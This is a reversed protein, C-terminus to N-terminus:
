NDQREAHIKLGYVDLMVGVVRSTSDRDFVVMIGAFRGDRKTYYCDKIWPHLTMNLEDGSSDVVSLSLGDAGLMVQIEREIRDFDPARYRGVYVAPEEIPRNGVDGELLISIIEPVIEEVPAHFFNSLIIVVVGRSPMVEFGSRFGWIRGFHRGAGFERMSRESLFNEEYLAQSFRYLDRVSAFVGGSGMFYTPDMEGTRTLNGNQLEYGTAPQDPDHCGLHGAGTMGLPMFVHANLYEGFPIGSTTETVHALLVYGSSSYLVRTGPEFALSRERFLGVLEKVTIPEM